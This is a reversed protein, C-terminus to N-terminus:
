NNGSIIEQMTKVDEQASADGDAVAAKFYELAKEFEFNQRYFVGLYYNAGMAGRRKGETLMELAKTSDQEVGDGTMYALGLIVYAGSHNLKLAEQLYAIGKEKESGLWYNIGKLYLADPDKLQAAKELWEEAKKSNASVGIGKTLDEYVNMMSPVIGAEAAKLHWNYAEAPDAKVGIGNYYCIALNRMAWGFGNEASKRFWKVAETPNKPVGYGNVYCDALSNQAPAIGQNAALTYWRVAEKYDQPVGDGNFYKVGMIGQAVAHGNEAARRCWKSAEKENMATGTGKVYLNYLQMQAEAHGSEAMETLTRLFNQDGQAALAAIVEVPMTIPETQRTAEQKPATEKKKRGFLKEFMGMIGKKETEQIKQYANIDLLLAPRVACPVNLNLRMVVPGMAAPHHNCAMRPERLWYTAHEPLKEGAKAAQQREQEFDDDYHLKAYPTAACCAAEDSIFLSNIEEVGLLFVRGLKGKGARYASDAPLICAREKQSFANNMFRDNLWARLSSDEWEVQKMSGFNFRVTGSDEMERDVRVTEADQHYPQADLAYSSVLLATDQQVHLVTWEIPTKAGNTQQPYNGFSVVSGTNIKNQM